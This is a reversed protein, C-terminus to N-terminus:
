LEVEEGGLYANIVNPDNQIQQPTGEAIKEGYNLVVIRDSIDMIMGMDHEILIIEISFEKALQKIKQILGAKEAANMGAAPEDLLLVECGTALARAIELLRQEGYPLSGAFVDLKHDLGVIALKEVCSQAIAERKRRLTTQPQFVSSFLGEKNCDAHAVLVNELVTMNKLLRTNQFTRAIGMGVRQYPKLKNIVTDKYTITGSTPRYIGTLLNFLTTKGAGNPGIVSLIEGRRVEMNVGNLAVLGGFKVSVQNLELVKDM